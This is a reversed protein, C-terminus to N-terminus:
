TTIWLRCINRVLFSQLRSAPLILVFEVTKSATCYVSTNTLAVNM